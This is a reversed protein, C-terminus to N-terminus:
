ILCIMSKFLFVKNFYKMSKDKVLSSKSNRRQWERIRDGHAFKM